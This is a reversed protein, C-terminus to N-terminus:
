RCASPKILAAPAGGGLDPQDYPAEIAAMLDFGIGGLHSSPVNGFRCDENPALPQDTGTAAAPLDIHHTVPVSRSGKFAQASRRPPPDDIV